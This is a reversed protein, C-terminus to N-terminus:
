QTRTLLIDKELVPDLEICRKEHHEARSNKGLARLVYSLFLHTTAHAEHYLLSEEFSKIAHTYDESKMLTIGQLYAVLYGKREIVAKQFLSKAKTFDADMLAKYGQVLLRIYKTDSISEEVHQSEYEIGLRGNLNMALIQEIMLEERITIPIHQQVLMGKEEIIGSIHISRINNSNNLIIELCALTELHATDLDMAIGTSTIEEPKLVRRKGGFTEIVPTVGTEQAYLEIFRLTKVQERLRENEDGQVKHPHLIIEQLGLTRAIRAAQYHQKKFREQLPLRPGHMAKVRENNVLGIECAKGHLDYLALEVLEESKGLERQFSEYDIFPITYTVIMM